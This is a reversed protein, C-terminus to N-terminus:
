RFRFEGLLYDKRKKIQKFLGAKKKWEPIKDEDVGSKKALLVLNGYALPYVPNALIARDLLDRAEQYKGREIMLAGLNNLAASYDPNVLLAQRYSKEACVKDGILNCQYGALIQAEPKQPNKEAVRQWFAYDNSYVFMHTYSVLGFFFVMSAMVTNVFIFKKRRLGWNEFWVALGAIVAMSPLYLYRDQRLVSIPILNSVPLLWLM